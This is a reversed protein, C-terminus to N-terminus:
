ESVPEIDIMERRIRQDVGSMVFRSQSCGPEPNKPCQMYDEGRALIVWYYPMQGFHKAGATHAQLWGYPEIYFESWAHGEKLLVRAPIGMARCIAVFAVAREECKGKKAKLSAVAGRASADGYEITSWVYDFAAKAAEWPHRHKALIDQAIARVFPDDSQINPGPVLYRRAATNGPPWSMIDTDVTPLHRYVTGEFVLLAYKTDGKQMFTIDFRAYRLQGDIRVLDMRVGQDVQSRVLHIDPQTMCPSPVPVILWRNVVQEQATWTMEMEYRFPKPDVIGRILEKEVTVPRELITLYVNRLRGGFLRFGNRGSLDLPGHVSGEQDGISIAIKNRRAEIRFPYWSGPETKEFAVPFAYRGVQTGTLLRRKVRVGGGYAEYRHLSDTERLYWEVGGRHITRPDGSFMVEGNLSFDKAETGQLEIYVDGSAGITGDEGVECSKLQDGVYRRGEKSTLLINKEGATLPLAMACLVLGVSLLGLCSRMTVIAHVASSMPKTAGGRGRVATRM